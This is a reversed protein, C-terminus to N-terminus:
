HYRIVVSDRLEPELQAPHHPPHPRAAPRRRLQELEDLTGREAPPVDREEGLHAAFAVPRDALERALESQGEGGRRRERALELLAPQDGARLVGGVAATGHDTESGRGLLRHSTPERRPRPRELLRECRQRRGLLVGEQFSEGGEGVRQHFFRRM